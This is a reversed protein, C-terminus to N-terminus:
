IKKKDTKELAKKEAAEERAKRNFYGRLLFTHKLANMNEDLGKSSNKLNILTEDLNGALTTDQILRGLTGNGNNIKYM